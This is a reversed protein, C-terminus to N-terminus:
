VGGSLRKYLKGVTAGQVLISFLVVMYTVAVFEDHHMNAPLSLAMAISLGGRLGGWTLIAVANKDFQMWIRLISIPLLVSLWRAFLVVFVLISGLVLTTTHAHVVLMEFGILLFLVANLLEDILGWFKYLYTKTDTSGRKGTGHQGIVIGAVVMALPGSIGMKDALMYGGMVIAITILVEVEYNDISNLLLRGLYGLMFGYALGGVAEKLFLLVANGMSFSATGSGAIELITIFVVVAVGDNFLSEGAIKIELPKSIGARKLIALVAIPDTPSILAAFLLCHILEMQLGLLGSLFYLIGGVVATSIFIGISSLVVIPWQQKRLTNADIHVAGAFLLFGLMGKMLLTDFDISKIIDIFGKSYTPLLDSTLVLFLSFVLSLFTIGITPTWKLFRHNLFSCVAALCVILTFIEYSEM